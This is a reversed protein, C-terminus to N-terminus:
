FPTDGAITTRHLLRRHRLQDYATARHLVSRNDWVLLDGARWRHRYTFRPQTCFEQLYTVLPASEEEPLGEILWPVNGGAYIAARGTVPHTRILPQSMDPWATVEEPTPAPRDPYNYPRSRVRSIIVRMGAARRRIREPLAACAAATNAFWTDGGEPPVELAYLLSAAPPQRLYHGDTHWVRGSVPSGILRGDKRINSLVLIAEEGDAAFEQRTYSTPTGFRRTLRLHQETTMDLGRVLLLGSDLWAQRLREFVADSLLEEFALGEVCAGLEPTLPHITVM